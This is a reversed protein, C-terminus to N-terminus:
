NLQGIFVKLDDPTYDSTWAEDNLCHLMMTARAYDLDPCQEKCIPWLIDMDIRRQRRRWWKAIWKM